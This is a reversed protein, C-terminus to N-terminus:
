HLDLYKIDYVQNCKVIKKILTLKYYFDVCIFNISYFICPQM